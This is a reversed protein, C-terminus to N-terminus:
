AQNAQTVPKHKVAFEMEDLQEKFKKSYQFDKYQKLRLQSQINTITEKYNSSKKDLLNVIKKVEKDFHTKCLNVFEENKEQHAPVFIKMDAYLEDLYFLFEDFNTISKTSLNNMVGVLTYEIDLKESLKKLQATVEQQSLSHTSSTPVETSRNKSQTVKINASNRKLKRSTTILALFVAAGGCVTVKEKTTYNDSRVTADVLRNMGKNFFSGLSSIMNTVADKNFSAAVRDAANHLKEKVRDKFQDMPHTAVTTLALLVFLTRYM